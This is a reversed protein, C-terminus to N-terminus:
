LWRRVRARYQEYDDRFTDKLRAEEIPIVTWNLYAVVLPLLLLALDAEVAGGRRRLGRHPRRVDSQADRSVTGVDGAERVVRGTGDDHSRKSLDGAGVRCDRGGGCVAACRCDFDCADCTSQRRERAAVRSRSRASVDARIGM